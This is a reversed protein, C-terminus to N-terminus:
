LVFDGAALDVMGTLAVVLDAAGDGDTDGEVYTLGVNGDQEFRLEGAAGSFAAGGIFAFAQDGAAAADADVFHLDIRDLEAQSFDGILDAGAREASTDGPRFIFVDREAGGLLIDLGAGGVLRDNGGGGELTDDGAAGTLADRGDEGRVIDNGVGGHMRDNDDGGQLIDDGGYGKLNDGGALGSLVDDGGTGQIVNGLGNGTGIRAGGQLILHEFNDPLTFDYRSYVRDIGADPAEVIIDEGQLFYNDNGLGGSLTDRATGGRLVDNGDGGDLTDRGRGGVLVDDGEGGSLSDHGGGGNITDNGALGDITDNKKTGVLIDDGSTAIAM